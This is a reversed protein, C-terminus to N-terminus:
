SSESSADEQKRIDVIQIDAMGQLEKEAAILTPNAGYPITRYESTERLRQLIDSIEKVADLCPGLNNARFVEPDQSQLQSLYLLLVATPQGIHHCAAGLSEIMVRQREAVLIEDAQAEITKLMTKSQKLAQDLQRIHNQLKRILVNLLQELVLTDQEKSILAANEPLVEAAMQQLYHLLRLMNRPYVRLLYYGGFFCIVGFFAMGNPIMDSAPLLETYRSLMIVVVSLVPIVSVLAIASSFYARSHRSQMSLKALKTEM